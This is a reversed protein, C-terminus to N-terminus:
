AHRDITVPGPLLINRLSLNMYWARYFKLDDEDSQGVPHVPLVDTWGAERPHIIMKGSLESMWILLHEGEGGDDFTHFYPYPYTRRNDGYCKGLYREIHGYIEQRFARVEAPHDDSIRLNEAEFYLGNEMTLHLLDV